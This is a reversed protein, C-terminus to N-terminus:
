RGAEVEATLNRWCSRRDVVDLAWFAALLSPGDLGRHREHFREFTLRAGGPEPEDPDDGEARSTRSTRRHGPRGGGCSSRARVAPAVSVTRPAETGCSEVRRALERSRHQLARRRAALSAFREGSPGASQTVKLNGLQDVAWGVAGLVKYLHAYEPELKSQEAGCMQLRAKWRQAERQKVGAM